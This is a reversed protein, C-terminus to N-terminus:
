INNELVNQFIKEDEEIKQTVKEIDDNNHLINIREYCNPCLAAINKYNDYGAKSLPVLHYTKLFPKGNAYFPAVNGCLQCQGKARRKAYERVYPNYEYTKTRTIRSRPIGDFETVKKRLAIDSINQSANSIYKQEDNIFSEELFNDGILKLPFKWVQRKNGSFDDEEKQFPTGALKVIGRYMYKKSSFVEFLHVIVGNRNSENLTKNQAYEIDQNGEMGMGTYFFTNGQWYDLYANNPDDHHSTLVLAGTSHSRRMGGQTSCKFILAIEENSYEKGIELKTVLANKRKEIFEVVENLNFLKKRTGVQEYPLGEDILRYLTARAIGTQNLIEKVTLLDKM